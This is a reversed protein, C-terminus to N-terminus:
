VDKRFWKKKLEEFRRRTSPPAPPAQPSKKDWPLPFVSQPTHEIERKLHPLVAAFALYRTRDWSEKEEEEKKKRWRNYIESFQFPTLDMFDNLSLGMTGIAISMM